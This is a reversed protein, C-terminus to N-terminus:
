NWHFLFYIYENQIHYLDSLHTPCNQATAWFHSKMYVWTVEKFKPTM